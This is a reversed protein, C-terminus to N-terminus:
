GALLITVEVPGPSIYIMTQFSNNLLPIPMICSVYYEHPNHVGESTVKNCYRSLEFLKVLVIYSLLSVIALLTANSIDDSKM